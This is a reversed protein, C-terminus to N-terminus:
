PAYVRLYRIVLDSQQPTDRTPWGGGLGLDVIPYFPQKMMSPTPVTYIVNGDCSFTMTSATWLLGFTHFGESLNAVRSLRHALTRAPPTWDHLTTNVYNPAFMFSEVVDIEAAPAHDKLAASNLLWFAPWTGKAAPFKAKLEFYGYQQAFGRGARDVTALVGSYWAGGTKQLRIVLGKGPTFSFPQQGQPASIGAMHTPTSPSSTDFMCCQITHTYWKAGTGDNDSISLSQFEDDFTLRYGAPLLSKTDRSPVASLLPIFRSRSSPAEPTSTLSSRIAETFSSPCARLFSAHAGEITEIGSVASAAIVVAFLAKARGLM